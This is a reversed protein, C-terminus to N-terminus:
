GALTTKRWIQGWSIQRLTNKLNIVATVATLAKFVKNRM